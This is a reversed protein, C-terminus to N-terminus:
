WASIEARVAVKAACKSDAAVVSLVRKAAVNVVRKAVVNAVANDAASDVAVRGTADPLVVSVM